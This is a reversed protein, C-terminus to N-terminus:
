NQDIEDSAESLKQLKAVLLENFRESYKESFTSLISEFSEYTKGIKNSFLKNSDGIFEYFSSYDTSFHLENKEIAMITFEKEELKYDLILSDNKLQSLEEEVNSKNLM